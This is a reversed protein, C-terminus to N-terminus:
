VFEHVRVDELLFVLILSIVKIKVKLKFSNDPISWDNTNNDWQKSFVTKIFKQDKFLEQSIYNSHFLHIYKSMPTNSNSASTARFLSLMNMSENSNIELSDSNVPHAEIYVEYLLTSSRIYLCGFILSILM